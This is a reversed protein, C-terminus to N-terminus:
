TGPAGAKPAVGGVELSRTLPPAGLAERVLQLAGYASLLRIQGRDGRFHSLKSRTGAPSALALWVTGVPKEPTGGDPGAIGTIATVYTAGSARRAGEAMARAVQESVAGHARILEGPVGLASLKLENSYTVYGGAVYRSSGATETLLQAVLGGTCSEATAITENRSALENGVAQAFTLGDAGYVHAGLAARCLGEVVALNRAATADDDALAALSLHNEPFKTRFGFRVEPHQELVPRVVEDLASETIGYCQLVRTRLAAHGTARALRPLVVEEIIRHDERPVGPRFFFTCRDIRLAFAPASGDPNGLNEAGEPLLAQRENNAPIPERRRAVWRTRLRELWAQDLRMPVGAAQAACEATLDDATPGLGGSVICFDARVSAELLARRIDEGRDGVVVTRRLSVGLPYLRASTLATNTDAITGRMVEDGTVVFEIIPPRAQQAPQITM